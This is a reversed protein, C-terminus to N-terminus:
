RSTWAVSGCEAPISRVALRRGDTIHPQIKEHHKEDIHVEITNYEYSPELRCHPLATSMGLLDISTCRSIRRNACWANMRERRVSKEKSSRTAADRIPGFGIGVGSRGGGRPPQRSPLRCRRRNPRRLRRLSSKAAEAPRHNGAARADAAIGRKRAIQQQAALRKQEALSEALDAARNRVGELEKELM